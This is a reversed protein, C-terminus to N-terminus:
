RTASGPAAPPQSMAESEDKVSVLSGDGSYCILVTHPRGKSVAESPAAVVEALGLTLLDAGAEGIIVAAKKATSAGKMHLEYVDCANGGDKLTSEPAGLAAVVDSRKEGPTYKALNVANPRNAEMVTSCGGLLFASTMGVLITLRM